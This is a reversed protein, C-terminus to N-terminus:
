DPAESGALIKAAPASKVPRQSKHSAWALLCFLSSQAVDGQFMGIIFCLQDQNASHCADAFAVIHINAGSKFCPYYSQIGYRKLLNLVNIQFM